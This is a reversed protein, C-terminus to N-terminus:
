ILIAHIYEYSLNTYKYSTKNRKEAAKRSAFVGDVEFSRGADWDIRLWLESGINVAGKVVMCEVQYFSGEEDFGASGDFDVAHFAECLKYQAWAQRFGDVTREPEPPPPAFPLPPPPAAGDQADGHGQQAMGDVAAAIGAVAATRM